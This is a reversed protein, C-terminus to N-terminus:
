TCRSRCRTRLLRPSRRSRRARLRRPRPPIEPDFRTFRRGEPENAHHQCRRAWESAEDLHADALALLTLAASALAFGYSDTAEDPGTLAAAAHERARDIDAIQICRMALAAHIRQRMHGPVDPEALAFELENIGDPGPKTTARHFRVTDRVEPPLETAILDDSLEAVRDTRGLLALADLLSTAINWRQPGPEPSLALARELLDVGVTTSVSIAENAADVLHSVADVGETDALASQSALLFPSRGSHELAAAAETHMSARLSEPLDLYLADRVLDHAFRVEPGTTLIGARTAEDLPDLLETVGCRCIVALDSAACWSGLLAALRLVRLTPPRLGALQRLVATRFTPPIEDTGPALEVSGGAAATLTGDADAARILEIIHLPNGGSRLIWGALQPGIPAGATASAIALSDREALPELAIETAGTDLASTLLDNPASGPEAPRTALVVLLPRTTAQAVLLGVAALTARDAWQLDDVVIVVPEPAFEDTADLLADVIGPARDGAVEPHDPLVRTMAGAETWPTPMMALADTLPAFPRVTDLAQSRMHLVAAGLAEARVILERALRTKGLGPAGVVVVTGGEGAATAALRADLTALERDRGLIEVPSTPGPINM